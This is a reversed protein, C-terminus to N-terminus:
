QELVPITFASREGEPADRTASASKKENMKYLLYGTLSAGGVGILTIDVISRRHTSSSSTSSAPSPNASSSSSSSSSTPTAFSRRIPSPGSPVRPLPISLRPRPM